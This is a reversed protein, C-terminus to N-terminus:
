TEATAAVLGALVQRAAVPGANLYWVDDDVATARGEAVAPVSRWLPGGLLEPAAGEGGQVGYFVHGGDARALQETSIDESTKAFTQSPPRPLGADEAVSGTFSAVGFVRIRDATVRLLSVTPRSAVGGDVRGDVGGGLGGDLGDGLAAADAHYADLWRQAQEARGLGHALILLDQKWNVGTGETLVTPAIRSLQPYLEEAGAENALILDPRANAVSELNPELRLGLDAMAALAAAREPFAEALYAPVLDAADGRTGGVPTVGLALLADLQGTALVVVRQPAAPIETTGGFHAVTRPFVGDPESSGMGPPGARPATWRQPADSPGASGSPASGSPTAPATQGACAALALVAAVLLVPLRRVIYTLSM